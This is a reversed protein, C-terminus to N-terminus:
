IAQASAGKKSVSTPDSPERFKPQQPSRKAFNHNSSETKKKSKKKSEKPKKNSSGAISVDRNSNKKTCTPQRWRNFSYNATNTRGQWGAGWMVRYRWRRMLIRWSNSHLRCRLIRRIMLGRGRRMCIICWRRHWVRILGGCFTLLVSRVTVRSGRLFRWVVNAINKDRKERKSLNATSPFSISQCSTIIERLIRLISLQENITPTCKIMKIGETKIATTNSTIMLRRKRRSSRWQRRRGWM